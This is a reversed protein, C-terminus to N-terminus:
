HRWRLFLGRIRSRLSFLSEGPRNQYLTSHRRSVEEQPRGNSYYYLAVSKRTRGPPCNLPEPHGHYAFDTTSFVVCRNFVPLIKHECRKMDTSWLELHGGYEERWDKNLYLLLNLRRDLKLKDHKNFDAHVKLFGGPQIQHLGGGYLHPDAILGDIGTLKELFSIFISSNLQQLFSLTADGMQSEDRTGLKKGRQDAFRWWDIDGPSPFETLIRELTEPPFVDDLVIHSFPQATRYRPANEKAVKQLHDHNPRFM